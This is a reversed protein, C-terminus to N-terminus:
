ENVYQYIDSISQDIDIFVHCFNIIQIEPKDSSVILLSIEM